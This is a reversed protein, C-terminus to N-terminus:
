HSTATWHIRGSDCRGSGGPPDDVPVKRGHIRMKGSASKGDDSVSGTLVLTSLPKDHHPLTVVAYVRLRPYNEQVPRYSSRLAATETNPGDKCDLPFKQFALSFLRVTGHTKKVKFSLSGSSEFSGNFSTTSALALSALGLAALATAAAILTRRM